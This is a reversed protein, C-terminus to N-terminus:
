SKSSRMRLLDEVRDSGSVPPALEGVGSRGGFGVIDGSQSSFILRREEAMKTTGSLRGAASFSFAPEFRDARKPANGRLDAPPVRASAAMGSPVCHSLASVPSASGSEAAPAAVAESVPAGEGPAADGAELFPPQREAKM